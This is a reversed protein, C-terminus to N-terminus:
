GVSETQYPEFPRKMKPAAFLKLFRGFAIASGKPYEFKALALLPQSLGALMEKFTKSDAVVLIEPNLTELDGPRRAKVEAVGWRVHITFAEGADQFVMGVMQNVDGSAAPDLNAALSDLYASLPFSHLMAPTPKTTERIVFGDRIELVESLYYNRANPNQEREALATLAKVRIAKAESNEPNLRLLHGTLELAAQYANESLLAQAQGLLKAEGGALRAMLQAQDGPPLPQLHASDGDFWGLHGTFMARVSWAVKGYFPQLYPAGALHSPLKVFEALEDPTMGQNIGRLAQDHVFQIADRYDTLIKQIEEAGKIPRTHCPVLFEPRLDRMRDLSRYWAKLSRFPTGRITYLNPFAWYFDDACVLLKKDPLWLVIQDDTEGPAHILQFKVGAVRDELSDAFTKTPRVYGTTSNQTVGLRPGIGANIVDGPDLAAGFMRLSRTGIIPRLEILISQVCRDTSEHAYIAPQSEGAFVDAGLVHDAHNHTYVMAKIPKGSIKRFEKLVTEAEERTTMTDVIILGDDGEIMISNALGFGIAVWVGDTVKEVGKEFQSSHQVLSADAKARMPPHSRRVGSKRLQWIGIVLVIAVILFVTQFLYRRM